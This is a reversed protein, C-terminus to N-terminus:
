LGALLGEMDPSMTYVGDIIETLYRIINGSDKRSIVSPISDSATVTLRIGDEIGAYEDQLRAAYEDALRNVIDADESAIVIVCEAHNPIANNATGGEMSALEFSVNEEELIKLFGGLAKIGNLRGKDIEVDSHGGKLGGLEIHLALDGSAPGFVPQMSVTVTDGAATSVSDM